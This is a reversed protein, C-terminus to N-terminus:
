LCHRGLPNNYRGLEWGRRFLLVNKSSFFSEAAIRSFLKGLLIISKEVEMFECPVLRGLDWPFYMLFQPFSFNGPPGITLVWCKWQWPGPIIGAWPVLIGCAECRLRFFFFFFFINSFRHAAQSLSDSRAKDGSRQRQVYSDSRGKNGDWKRERPNEGWLRSAVLLFHM